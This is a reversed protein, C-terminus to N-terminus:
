QTNVFGDHLIFLKAATRANAILIAILATYLMLGWATKRKLVVEYEYGSIQIPTKYETVTGDNM